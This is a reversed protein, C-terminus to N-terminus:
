TLEKEIVEAVQQWLPTAEDILSMHGAQRDMMVEVTDGARRAARAYELSFTAPVDTDAEGHVLLTKVGTPPFPVTAPKGRLFAAVAGAGVDAEEGSRLDNVGALSVALRPSVEPEAGVEGLRLRHRSASWLALFGGASHGIVAVRGLDLLDFRSLHDIAAAVDILTEPWGGGTGVRRYEVNWGAIGRAALDVMLGDMLDRQWPDRWFGGHVLVCVPHPGPGYPLRLDAVEDPHTGYAFTDPSRMTAFHLFRLAWRYGELGRGYITKAAVAALVSTARWPERARVNSIHVEVTPLATAELADALAYSTHSLAGANIVIGDFAERAQHVADILAGEDNTQFTRVEAGLGRGWARCHAELDDLTATGYIDPRRVGLLDLNPGNLVLYREM